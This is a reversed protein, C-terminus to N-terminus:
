KRLYKSNIFVHPDHPLFCARCTDKGSQDVTLKYTHQVYNAVARFYDKHSLQSTDASVVWKIGDGSPSVFLLETELSPDDLLKSRLDEVDDVHDFDLPLLGSHQQIAAENRKSFAGSFTVYDFNSAKYARAQKVDQIERLTSTCDTYADGKILTYVDLLNLQKSPVTNTVPKTFYSFEPIEVSPEDPEAAMALPTPAAYFSQRGIRLHMERNLTDFLEDDKQKFHMAAFDFADGFPIAHETDVHVACGDVIKIWLTPKGANFPNKTPKCDRGALSLVTDGPYYQRLVHAYINLGYHTKDLISERSLNM